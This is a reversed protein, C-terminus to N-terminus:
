GRGRWSTEESADTYNLEKSEYEISESGHDSPGPSPTCWEKIALNNEPQEEEGRQITLEGTM